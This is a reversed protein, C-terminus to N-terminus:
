RCADRDAAAILNQGVVRSSFPSTRTRATASTPPSRTRSSGWVLTRTRSLFTPSSWTRYSAYRSSLLRYSLLDNPDTFAVVKLSMGTMAQRQELFRQLPDAAAPLAGPGPAAAVALASSSRPVVSAPGRRATPATACIRARVRGSGLLAARSPDHRRCPRRQRSWIPMALSLEGALGAV